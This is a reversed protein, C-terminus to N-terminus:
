LINCWSNIHSRLIRQTAAQSSSKLWDNRLRGESQWKLKTSTINNM